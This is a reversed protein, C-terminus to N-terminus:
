VRSVKIAVAELRKARNTTGILVHQGTQIEQWGDDEVHGQAEVKFGDDAVIEIAELRLAKNKTGLWIGRGWDTWGVNQVHVRYKCRAHIIIAELRKSLGVTGSIDWAKAVPSDGVDQIHTQYTTGEEGFPLLSKRGDLYPIPDMAVGDVVVGLHLHPGTVYGTNGGLAMDQGKAVLDGVKVKISGNALHLYKTQGDGHQLVIYNGSYLSLNQNQIIAPTQSPSVGDRVAIVKGIDYALIRGVPTLDVGSHVANDQISGISLSRAGFPSSIRISAGTMVRNFISM